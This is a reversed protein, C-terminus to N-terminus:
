KTDEIAAHRLAILAVSKNLPSLTTQHAVPRSAGSAPRTPGLLVPLWRYWCALREAVEAIAQKKQSAMQAAAEDSVFGAQLICVKPV